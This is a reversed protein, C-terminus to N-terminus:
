ENEMEGKCVQVVLKAGEVKVIEIRSGKLIYNGKSLVDFSIGEIDAVGAPRLDTVAVGQKGLLYNLDGSSLYGEERNQEEDLVIPSKLKGKSLLFLIVAMLIGLLGLIGITILAAEVVSDALLFIGAIFCIIASIGPVSFGPVVMEIGALVFGAALLIIGAITMWEM